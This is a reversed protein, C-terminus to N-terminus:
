LSSAIRNRPFSLMRVVPFWGTVVSIMSSILFFRMASNFLFRALSCAAVEDRRIFSTFIDARIFLPWLAAGFRVFGDTPPDAALENLTAYWPGIDSLLSRRHLCAVTDHGYYKSM